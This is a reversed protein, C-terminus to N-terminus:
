LLSPPYMVPGRTGTYGRSCVSSGMIVRSRDVLFDDSKKLWLPGSPGLEGPKSVGARTEPSQLRRLESSFNEARLNFLAPPLAM